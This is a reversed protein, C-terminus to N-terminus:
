SRSGRGLRGGLVAEAVEGLRAEGLRLTGQRAAELPAPEPADRRFGIPSSLYAIGVVSEPRSRARSPPRWDHVPALGTPARRQRSPEVIAPQRLARGSGSPLAVAPPGGLRWAGCGARRNVALDWASPRRSPGPAAPM